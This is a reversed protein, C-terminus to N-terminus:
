REVGGSASGRSAIGRKGSRPQSATTPWGVMMNGCAMPPVHSAPWQGQIKASEKALADPTGAYREGNMCFVGRPSLTVSPGCVTKPNAEAPGPDSAQSKGPRPSRHPGADGSSTPTMTAIGCPCLM